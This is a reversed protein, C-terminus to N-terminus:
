DLKIPIQTPDFNAIHGKKCIRAWINIQKQTLGSPPYLQTFEKIRSEIFDQEYETIKYAKINAMLTECDQLLKNGWDSEHKVRSSDGLLHQHLRDALEIPKVTHDQNGSLRERLKQAGLRVAQKVAHGPVTIGYSEMILKLDDEDLGNLTTSVHIGKSAVTM